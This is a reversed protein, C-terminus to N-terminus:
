VCEHSRYCWPDVCREMEEGTAGAARRSSCGVCRAREKRERVRKEVLTEEKWSQTWRSATKM